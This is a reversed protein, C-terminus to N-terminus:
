SLLYFGSLIFNTLANTKMCLTTSPTLGNRKVTRSLFLVRMRHVQIPVVTCSYDIGEIVAKDEGCGSTYLSVTLSDDRIVGDIFMVFVLHTIGLRSFIILTHSQVEV